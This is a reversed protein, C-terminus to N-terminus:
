FIIKCSEEFELRPLRPYLIEDSSYGLNCIYNIRHNTSSFFTQNVMDKNFGSMPGCALKCSRAIICFYAAQLTSNRQATDLVLEENSIFYNKVNVNHPSLKDFKDYFKLDYAFLAVVPATKTKEVNNGLLCPYLKAKESESTLFLIRLPSSNLSTPGLKMINYIEKLLAIDVKKDSFKYCTRDAFIEEITRKM